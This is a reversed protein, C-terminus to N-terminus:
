SINPGSSSLDDALLTHLPGLGIEDDTQNVAPIEEDTQNVAPHSYHDAEPLLPGTYPMDYAGGEFFRDSPSPPNLLGLNSLIEASDSSNLKVPQLDIRWTELRGPEGRRTQRKCTEERQTCYQLWEDSVWEQRIRHDSITKM